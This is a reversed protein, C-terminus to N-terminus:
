PVPKTVVSFGPAQGEGERRKRLLESMIAPSKNAKKKKKVTKGFSEDYLTVTTELNGVSSCSHSYMSTKDFQMLERM